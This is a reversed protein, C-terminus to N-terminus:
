LQVAGPPMCKGINLKSYTVIAAQSAACGNEKIELKLEINNASEDCNGLFKSGDAATGLDLCITTPKPVPGGWMAFTTSSAALLAVTAITKKM